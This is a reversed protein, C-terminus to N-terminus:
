FTGLTSTSGEEGSANSHVKLHTLIIMLSFASLYFEKQQVAFRSHLVPKIHYSETEQLM